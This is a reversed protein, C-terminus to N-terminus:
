LAAEAMKEAERVRIEGSMLKPLLLDRTSVLTHCELLNATIRQFTPSAIEDFACAVPIPPDCVRLRKMDGATVHGLGTTQKNRAIESFASKLAKLQFYIMARSASGNERVRFIHQNLYAAGGVWVFTDISTDPNGSWSFLIEGSNIRYKEGLDTATFKTTATVGAKLEAIKIVPFGDRDPSFHMDKYAAGNVFEAVSHIPRQRWAAPRGDSELQDPFLAWIDPALYPALGDVKARTPGFDLFWDKFIARAMAELTENMRRNSEIKDDIASLTSSIALQEAISPLPITFSPFEKLAIRDVTAGPITRSRLFEQYPPSLYLYLFFRPDLKTRDIRVLGMRRGLCCELGEPIIAAQGLRTEYSFVIDDTKPKVRRTWKKFDDPTVHRTETLNLRGNQLAGIGLFIPGNSVTKPTAHPGDFVQAVDGIAVKRWSNM